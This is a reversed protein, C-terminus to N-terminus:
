NPKIVLEELLCGLSKGQSLEDYKLKSQIGMEYWQNRAEWALELTENISSESFHDIVFGNVKHEILEDVGGVKTIIIPRANYMTETISLSKGEFRSTHIAIQNQSWIEFFNFNVGKIHCFDLAYEKIKSKLVELHPGDGYFNFAVNRNKWKEDQLAKLLLDLGKHFFEIRGVYAISYTSVSPYPAVKEYNYQCPNQLVYINSMESLMSTFLEKNQQSVFFLALASSYLSLFSAYNYNTVHSWHVETVLGNLIAYPFGLQKCIKMEEYSSFVSGENIIVVDPKYKMLNLKFDLTGKITSRIFARLKGESKSSSIVSIGKNKLKDIFFDKYHTYAIVEHKASLESAATMWLKESGGYILNTSVFFFKM